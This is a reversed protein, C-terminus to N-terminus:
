RGSRSFSRVRATRLARAVQTVLVRSYHALRARSFGGWPERRFRAAPIAAKLAQQIDDADLGGHHLRVDCGPFEQAIRVIDDNSTLACPVVLIHEWEAESIDSLRFQETPKGPNRQGPDEIVIKM